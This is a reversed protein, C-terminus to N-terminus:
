AASSAVFNRDVAVSCPCGQWSFLSCAPGAASDSSSVRTCCGLLAVVLVVEDVVVLVVLAALHRCVGILESAAVVKFVGLITNRQIAALRLKELLVLLAAIKLAHGALILHLKKLKTGFNLRM